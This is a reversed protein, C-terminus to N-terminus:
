ARRSVRSVKGNPEDEAFIESSFRYIRVGEELWRGPALGAKMCLNDLFGKEDWDWELPVQPLLLGRFPGKEIMLGDRGLRISKPYDAPRKARVLEPPTLVSVEVVVRDLEEPSLPPFRPDRTASISAQVLAEMLPMVPEAYGICGRLDKGPYTHLTAFVGMKEDFKKPYGFPEHERGERVWLEMTKRATGVLLRGDELDM